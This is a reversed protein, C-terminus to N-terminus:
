TEYTESSEVEQEQEEEIEEFVEEPVEPPLKAALPTPPAQRQVAFARAALQKSIRPHNQLDARTVPKKLRLRMERYHQAAVKRSHGYRRM